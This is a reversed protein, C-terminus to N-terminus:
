SEEKFTKLMAGSVAERNPQFTKPHCRRPICHRLGAGLCASAGSVSNEGHTKLRYHQLTLKRELDFFPRLPLM